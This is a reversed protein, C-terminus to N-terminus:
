LNKYEQFCIKQQHIWWTCQTYEQVIFDALRGFTNKSQNIVYKPNKIAGDLWVIPDKYLTVPWYLWGFFSKRMAGIKSM